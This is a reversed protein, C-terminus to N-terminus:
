SQPRGSRSKSQPNQTREGESDSLRPRNLVAVDGGDSRADAALQITPKRTVKVSDPADSAGAEGDAAGRLIRNILEAEHAGAIVLAERSEATDLQDLTAQMKGVEVSQRIRVRMRMLQITPDADLVAKWFGIVLPVVIPVGWFAYTKLLTNSEDFQGTRTNFELVCNLAVIGFMAWGFVRALTAQTGHAFWVYNGVLFTLLSGEILLTPILAFVKAWGTFARSYLLFSLAGTFLCGIVILAGVIFRILNRKSEVDDADMIGKVSRAKFPDNRGNAADIPPETSNQKAM